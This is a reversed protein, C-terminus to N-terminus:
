IRCSSKVKKRGKKIMDQINDNQTGTSLHDPNVCGPNDCSHMVVLGPPIKHKFMEYSVRHARKQKGNINLKGYGRSKSGKWDWCGNDAYEVHRMFLVLLPELDKKKPEVRMAEDINYGHSLRCQLTGAKRGFAQALKSISPYEKGQYVLHGM